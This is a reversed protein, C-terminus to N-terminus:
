DADGALPQADEPPQREELSRLGYNSGTAKGRMAGLDKNPRVKRSLFFGTPLGPLVVPRIAFRVGM